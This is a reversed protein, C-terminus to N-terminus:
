DLLDLVDVSLEEFLKLFEFLLELVYVGWVVAVTFFADDSAHLYTQGLRVM